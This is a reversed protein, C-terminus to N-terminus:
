VCQTLQCNDLFSCLLASKRNDCHQQQEYSKVPIYSHVNVTVNHWYCQDYKGDSCISVVRWKRQQQLETQCISYPKIEIQIHTVNTFNQSVSSSIRLGVTGFLPIPAPSSVSLHALFMFYSFYQLFIVVLTQPIYVTNTSFVNINKCIPCNQSLYEAYNQCQLQHTM